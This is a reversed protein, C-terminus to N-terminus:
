DLDDPQEDIRLPDDDVPEAEDPEGALPDFRYGIGLTVDHTAFKYKGPLPTKENDSVDRPLPYVLMYAIDAHFGYWETGIGLCSNIRHSDPLMPDLTDDPVVNGDLMIGARVAFHEIFWWEGGLRVQIFDRYNKEEVQVYQRKDPAVELGEEFEFELKDYSSWMTYWFDLEFSLTEMPWFRVGSSILHPLNITAKFDQDPFRQDFPPSVSFDAKGNDMNMTIGSRYGAGFRLWDAPQYMLGLNGGFGWTDGGLHVENEYGSMGEPVAPEMGLTLRRRIDVAGWKADFGAAIAFGHFPGFSVNPNITFSTLGADTVIHDGEWDKPWHIALGFDVFEGLGFALWDNIKWSWFFHPVAIPVTRVDTREGQPNEYYGTPIYLTGVLEFRMDDLFSLNAANQFLSSPKNGAAVVAGGQAMGDGSMEQIFFGNALAPRPWLAITGFLLWLGAVFIVTSGVIRM